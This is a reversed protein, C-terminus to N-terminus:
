QVGGRLGTKVDSKDGGLWVARRRAGADTIALVSVRYYRGCATGLDSNDPLLSFCLLTDSMMDFLPTCM